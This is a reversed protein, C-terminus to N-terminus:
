RLLASLLPERGVARRRGRGVVPVCAAFVATWGGAAAVGGVVHSAQSHEAM